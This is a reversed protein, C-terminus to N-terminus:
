ESDQWDALVAALIDQAVVIEDGVEDLAVDGAVDLARKNLEDIVANPLLDLPLLYARLDLLTVSERNRFWNAIKALPPANDSLSVQEAQAAPSHAGSSNSDILLRLEALESLFATPNQKLLDIAARVLAVASEHPLTFTHGTRTSPETVYIPPIPRVEKELRDQRWLWGQSEEDGQLAALLYYSKAQHIDQPVGRGDEFMRGLMCQASSYGQSAAKRYWALATSENLLVDWNWVRDPASYIEGLRYQAEALGQEAARTYCALAQKLDLPTSKLQHERGLKFLTQPDDATEAVEARAVSADVAICVSNWEDPTLMGIWALNTAHTRYFSMLVANAERTGRSSLLKLAFCIQDFTPNPHELIWKGHSVVTAPSDRLWAIVRPKVSQRLKEFDVSQTGTVHVFGLELSSFNATVRKDANMQLTLTTESSVIDGSWGSFVSGKEAFASLTINTGFAYIGVVTEHNTLNPPKRVVFGSGTGARNLTLSTTKSVM